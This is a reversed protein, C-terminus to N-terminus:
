RDGCHGKIARSWEGFLVIPAFEGVVETAAKWTAQGSAPHRAVGFGPVIVDDPMRYPGFRHVDFWEFPGYVTGCPYSWKADLFRRVTWSKSGSSVRFLYESRSKHMEDHIWEEPRVHEPSLVALDVMFLDTDCERCCWGHLCADLRDGLRAYDFEISDAGLWSSDDLDTGCVACRLSESTATTIMFASNM